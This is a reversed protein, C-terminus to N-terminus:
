PAYGAPKRGAPKPKYNQDVSGYAESLVAPPSSNESIRKGNELSDLKFTVAERGAELYSSFTVHRCSEDFEIKINHHEGVGKQVKEVAFATDDIAFKLLRSGTDFLRKQEDSLPGHAPVMDGFEDQKVRLASGPVYVEPRTARIHKNMLARYEDSLSIRNTDIGHKIFGDTLTEVLVRKAAEPLDASLHLRISEPRSEFRKSLLMVYDNLVAKFYQQQVDKKLVDFNGDYDMKILEERGKKVLITKEVPDQVINCYHKQAVARIDQSFRRDIEDVLCPLELKGVAGNEFRVTASPSDGSLKIARETERYEHDDPLRYRNPDIYIESQDDFEAAPNIIQAIKNLIKNM